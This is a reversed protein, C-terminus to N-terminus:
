SGVEALKLSKKQLKRVERLRVPILLTLAQSQIRYQSLPISHSTQDAIWAASAKEVDAILGNQKRIMVKKKAPAASKMEKLFTGKANVVQSVKPALPRVKLRSPSSMGEESLKIMELKQNLTLSTRGRRESSRTSAM